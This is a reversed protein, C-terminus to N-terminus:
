GLCKLALPVGDCRQYVIRGIDEFPKLGDAGNGQKGYASRCFLEWAPERSLPQLEHLITTSMLYAAMKNRTLILLSSGPAGVLLSKLAQWDRIDENWVDDLVLLFRKNKIRDSLLTSPPLVDAGHSDACSSSLTFDDGTSSSSLGELISQVTKDLYSAASQPVSIWLRTDFHSKVKDDNYVYKALTTKGIGGIGVISVVRVGQSKNDVEFLMNMINEKDLERGCIIDDDECFDRYSHTCSDNTHGPLEINLELDISESKMKELKRRLSSLKKSKDFLLFASSFSPAVSSCVKTINNDGKTKQRLFLVLEDLLDEIEYVLDKIRDLFDCVEDDGLQKLEADELVSEVANLTNELKKLENTIGSIQVVGGILDNQSLLIIVDILKKMVLTMVSSSSYAM